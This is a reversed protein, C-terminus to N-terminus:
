GCDLTVTVPHRDVSDNGSFTGSVHRVVPALHTLGAGSLRTAASEVLTEKGGIWAVVTGDSAGAAASPQSTFYDPWPGRHDVGVTVGADVELKGNNSWCVGRLTHTGDPLTIAVTAPGHCFTMVVGAQGPVMGGCSGGSSRPWGTAFIAGPGDGAPATTVPRTTSTAHTATSRAASGGGGGSSSCAGLVVLSAALVLPAASRIRARGPTPTRRM